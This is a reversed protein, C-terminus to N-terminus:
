KGLTKLQVSNLIRQMVEKAYPDGDRHMVIVQQLGNEQGFALVEYYLKKSEGTLPSKATLTGYAKV